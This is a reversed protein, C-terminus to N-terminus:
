SVTEWFNYIIVNQKSKFWTVEQQRGTEVMREELAIQTTYIDVVHSMFSPKTHLQTSVRLFSALQPSQSPNSSGRRLQPPSWPLKFSRHLFYISKRHHSSPLLWPCCLLPRPHDHKQWTSDPCPPCTSPHLPLSKFEPVKQILRNWVLAENTCQYCRVCTSLTLSKGGRLICIKSYTAPNSERSSTM